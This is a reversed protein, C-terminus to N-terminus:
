AKLDFAIGARVGRSPPYGQTYVTEPPVIQNLLTAAFLPDFACQPARRDGARRNDRQETLLLIPEGTSMPAEAANSM